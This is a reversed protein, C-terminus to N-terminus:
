SSRVKEFTATKEKQGRGDEVKAAAKPAGVAELWKPNINELQLYPTVDSDPVSNASAYGM